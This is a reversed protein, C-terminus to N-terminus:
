SIDTHSSNLRTTKRDVGVFVFVRLVLLGVVVDFGVTLCVGFGVRVTFGVCVTFGVFVAGLGVVEDDFDDDPLPENRITHTRTMPGLRASEGCQTYLWPLM